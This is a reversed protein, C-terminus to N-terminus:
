QAPVGDWTYGVEIRKDPTFIYPTTQNARHILADPQRGTEDKFLYTDVEVMPTDEEICNTAPNAPVLAKGETYENLKWYGLLGPTDSPVAYRNNNLEELTRAVSWFRVQCYRYHLNGLSGNARENGFRIGNLAFFQTAKYGSKATYGVNGDIYLTIDGENCVIAIHHWVNSRLPISSIQKGSRSVMGNLFSNKTGGGSDGLRLMFGDQIIKTGGQEYYGIASALWTTTNNTYIQSPNFLTEFTWSSLKYDEAFRTQLYSNGTIEVVNSFPVPTAAFIFAGGDALVPLRDGEAKVAVPLAHVFGTKNQETTLPHLIIQVPKSVVKGAPIVAQAEFEYNAEPLLEYTTNNRLNYAELAKADVYVTLKLDTDLPKSIRPTVTLVKGEDPIVFSTSKSTGAAENLFLRGAGTVDDYRLEADNCSSFGLLIAAVVPLYIAKIKM